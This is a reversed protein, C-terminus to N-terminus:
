LRYYVYNPCIFFIFKLAFTDDTKFARFIWFSELWYLCPLSFLMRCNCFSILVMECNARILPIFYGHFIRQSKEVWYWANQMMVGEFAFNEELHKNTKKLRLKGLFCTALSIKTKQQLAGEYIVDSCEFIKSKLFEM